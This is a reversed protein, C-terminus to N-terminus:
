LQESRPPPFGGSSLLQLLVQSPHSRLPLLFSSMHFYPHQWQCLLCCFFQLVTSIPQTLFCSSFIYSQFSLTICLLSAPVLLYAYSSSYIPSDSCAMSYLVLCFTLIPFKSQLFEPTANPFINACHPSSCSLFANATSLLLLGGFVSRLPLALICLQRCEQAASNGPFAAHMGAWGGELRSWMLVRGNSRGSVHGCARSHVM